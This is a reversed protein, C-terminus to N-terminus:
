HKIKSLGLWGGTLRLRNLFRGFGQPNGGQHYDWRASSPQKRSHNTETERRSPAAPMRHLKKPYERKTGQSKAYFRSIALFAGKHRRESNSVM